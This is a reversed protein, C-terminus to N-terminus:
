IRIGYIVIRSGAPILSSTSNYRSLRFGRFAKANSGPSSISQINQTSNSASASRGTTLTIGSIIESKYEIYTAAGNALYRHTPGSTGADVDSTTVILNTASIYDNTGTTSPELYVRVLMNSLTFPQGSIDTDVDFIQSDESVTVDAILEWGRYVGLMKQIAVKAADTYTGVANSSQSQTTDGAAKALGYFASTHQKAPTIPKYGHTGTKIQTDSAQHIRLSGAATVEIGESTSTHVVGNISSTGIPVNAVGDVLVSTGNVQVDQVPVEPIVGDALDSAPIGSAPKEYAGVDQADLVVDGTHGNVSQVPAESSDGDMVDFSHPGTADTITVRHGGTIDTVTITPSIGDAGPQGPAGDQGDKGDAGDAGDKGPEGQPGPDGKPGTEGTEGPDGKPGQPGDFEGSEKAETLAADIAAEVGEVVEHVEEVGANLAAIAQEIIDQQVPPPEVNQVGSRNQVVCMFSRKTWGDDAGTHVYLWGYLTGDTELLVDPVVVGSADGLVRYADETISKSFHVEYTQPLDIGILELKTGYDIKYLRPGVANDRFINVKVIRM